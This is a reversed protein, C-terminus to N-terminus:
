EINNTLTGMFTNSNSVMEARKSKISKFVAQKEVNKNMLSFKNQGIQEQLPQREQEQLLSTFQNEQPDL